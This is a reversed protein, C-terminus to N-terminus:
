SIDGKRKCPYFWWWRCRKCKLGWSASSVFVALGDSGSDISYVLLMYKIIVPRKRICVNRWHLVALQLSLESKGVLLLLDMRKRLLESLMKFLPVPVLTFWNIDFMTLLTLEVKTCLCIILLFVRTQVILVSIGASPDLEIYWRLKFPKTWKNTWRIIKKRVLFSCLYGITWNSNLHFCFYLRTSSIPWFKTFM